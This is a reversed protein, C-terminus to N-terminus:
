LGCLGTMGVSGSAIDSTTDLEEEDTSEAPTGRRPRAICGATGDGCVYHPMLISRAADGVHWREAKLILFLIASM